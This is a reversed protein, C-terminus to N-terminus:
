YGPSAIYTITNAYSGSIQTKSINVKYTIQIQPNKDGANGSMIIQPTENKSKDAFQRYFNNEKFEAPCTTGSINDCRYGFGYTLTNEWLSSRIESCYGNDCTTDPITTNSSTILLPNNEYATVMFIKNLSSLSINTTRFVPNTASLIGYDIISNSLSFSYSNLPDNLIEPQPQTKAPKNKPPSPVPKESTINLEDIQINWEDNSSIAASASSPFLFTLILICSTVYLICPAPRRLTNMM